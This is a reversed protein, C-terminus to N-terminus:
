ATRVRGSDVQGLRRLTTAVLLRAFARDRAELGALGGGPRLAAAIAQDLPRRRDLVAALLDLAAARSATGTTM